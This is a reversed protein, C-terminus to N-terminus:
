SAMKLVCCDCKWLKAEFHAITGEVDIGKMNALIRKSIELDENCNIESPSHAHANVIFSLKDMFEPWAHHEQTLIQKEM